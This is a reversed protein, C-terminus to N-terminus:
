RSPPRLGFALQASRRVLRIMPNAPRLEPFAASDFEPGFWRGRGSFMLYMPYATACVFRGLLSHRPRRYTSTVPEVSMPDARIDVGFWDRARRLILVDEPREGLDAVVAADVAVISRSAWLRDVVAPRDCGMVGLPGDACAGWGDVISVDPPAVDLTMMVATRFDIERDLHLTTDCPNGLGQMTDLCIHAVETPDGRLKAIVIRLEADLWRRCMTHQSLGREFSVDAHDAGADVITYSPSDYGFYTAVEQVSRGGYHNDYLTPAELVVVDGAGHARAWRAVSDLVDPSVVNATDNRHYGLMFTTKIAVTADPAIMVGLQDLMPWVVADVGEHSRRRARVIRRDSRRMTRADDVDALRLHAPLHAPSVAGLRDIVQQESVGDRLRGDRDFAAALAVFCESHRREDMAIREADLRERGDLRDALLEYGLTASSELAVNLECYDTFTLQRGLADALESPIQGTVRGATVVTRAALSRIPDRRRHAHNSAVSVWGSVAGFVQHGLIVVTSAPRRARALRARAYDVHMEEDKWIWALTQRLVAALDDSIALEDIRHVVDDSRYAVSAIQERELVMLWVRRMLGDPDDAHSREWGAVRARVDDCLVESLGAFRGPSAPM